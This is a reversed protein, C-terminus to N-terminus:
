DLLKWLGLDSINISVILTVDKLVANSILMIHIVQLLQPDTGIEELRQKIQEIMQRSEANKEEILKDKAQCLREWGEIEM